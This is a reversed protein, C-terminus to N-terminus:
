FYIFIYFGLKGKKKGFFGFKRTTNTLHLMFIINNTKKFFLIYINLNPRPSLPHPCMTIDLIILDYKNM